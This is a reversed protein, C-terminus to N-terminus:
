APLTCTVATGRGVESTAAIDGGHARMLSRAIPLGLGTGQSERGKYFRDFMRAVEEPGMGAGTDIVSISVQQAARRLSLRIHGGAPTHSLANTVLNALVEKIRVPDVPMSVTPLPEDCQLTVSLRGSQAHFSEVVDRILGALDTLEKQLSLAGADSIALTRLDEILRSLIRTQDLLQELQDPKLPYVGDLIGEIRGQLVTLPTRLEHALEAMLDRRQRDAYQLRQTMTNFSRILNRVPPPGHEDVRTGYDGEAIKDAAGMVASLPMAIHRATRFTRLASFAVLLVVVAAAGRRHWGHLGFHATILWTLSSVGSLALIFLVFAAIALRRFMRARVTVHAGDQWDHRQWREWRRERWRSGSHFTM